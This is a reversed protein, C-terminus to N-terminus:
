NKIIPTFHFTVNEKDVSKKVEFVLNEAADCYLGPKIRYSDNFTGTNFYMDMLSNYIGYNKVHVLHHDAHFNQGADDELWQTHGFKNDFSYQLM